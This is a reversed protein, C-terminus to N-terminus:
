FAGFRIGAGVRYSDFALNYEISYFIAGYEAFVGMVGVNVTPKSFINDTEEDNLLNTWEVGLSPMILNQKFVGLGFLGSFSIDRNVDFDFEYNALGATLTFLIGIPPVENKKNSMIDEGTFFGFHVGWVDVLSEGKYTGGTGYLAGITAGGEALAAGFESAFSDTEKQSEEFQRRSQEAKRGYEESTANGQVKGGSNKEQIKLTTEIIFERIQQSDYLRQASLADTLAAEYFGDRFNKQAKSYLASYIDAERNKQRLIEQDKKLQAEREKRLKTQEATEGPLAGSNENMSEVCNRFLPVVKEGSTTIGYNELFAVADQVNLKLSAKSIKKWEGYFDTPNISGILFIGNKKTPLSLNISNDPDARDMNIFLSTRNPGYINRRIGQYSLYGIMGIRIHQYNLNSGVCANFENNNLIRGGYYNSFIETGSFSEVRAYIYADGYENPQHIYYSITARGKITNDLDRGSESKYHVLEVNIFGDVAYSDVVDQTHTQSKIDLSFFFSIIVFLTLHRM